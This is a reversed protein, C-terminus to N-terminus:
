HNYFTTFYFWDSHGAWIYIYIYIKKKEELHAQSLPNQDGLIFYIHELHILSKWIGSTILWDPKLKEKERLNLIFLQTKKAAQETLLDRDAQVFNSFHPFKNGGAEFIDEQGWGVPLVARLCPPWLGSLNVWITFTWLLCCCRNLLSDQTVIVMDVTPSISQLWLLCAKPNNM